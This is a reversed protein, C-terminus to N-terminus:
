AWMFCDEKKRQMSPQNEFLSYPLLGDECGVIFVAKFELGKVSHLTMLNVASVNDRFRDMENGISTYEIFKNINTGFKSAYHLLGKLNEKNSVQEDKFYTVIIKQLVDKVTKESLINKLKNLQAMSIKKDQLLKETRLFDKPNLSVQLIDIVSQNISKQFIPRSRIKQYPISHDHFAKEIPKMQRSLRCLVAFDSLDNIKEAKSGETINSDMSFFRLGGMMKEITRAVREAEEKYTTSEIINLKVGQNLGKLLPQKHNSKAEIVQSSATLIKDSCRYSKHLNFLATHKFDEKFKQIYSVNAGRFGYIAQNPDGIACVNPNEEKMLLNILEYQASNIDQYEDILYWNYKNQLKTLLEPNERLLIVTKYLLDDIDVANMLQMQTEYKHFINKLKATNIEDEQILNRKLKSIEHSFEDAEKQNLKFKKRLLLQRDKENFISFNKSRNWYKKNNKLINLGFAHFTSITLQKVDSNALQERLRKNMEDAARNTFTIAVIKEPAIKEKLILYKIRNTLVRTKGTGPGAIILQPGKFHEVAKRQEENLEQLWHTAKKVIKKKDATEFLDMDQSQLLKKQKIKQFEEIDFNILNLKKTNSKSSRDSDEFLNKQKKFQNIENEEFLNIQGYEGDFGEKVRVQKTRMRSIAEAMIENSKKKIEAIPSYLLLDFESSFNKLISNYAKAVTKTNPGV